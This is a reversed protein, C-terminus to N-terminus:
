HHHGHSHGGGGGHSGFHGGSHGGFLSHGGGFNAKHSGGSFGKSSHGGGFLHFGGSRSAKGSYGGAFSTRQGLGQSRYNGAPARYGQATSRYVPQSFGSRSYASVPQRYISDTRGYVSGARVGNFDGTRGYRGSLSSSQPRGYLPAGSARPGFDNRTVMARRAYVDGVTQYGRGFAFRNEQIGGSTRVFGPGFGRGAIGNYGGGRDYGARDYGRFARPGGHPLGWDAVTTSHSYYDNHQFLVSQTLWSLGWSLWGWPTHNFVTMAIGLGYSVPSSGFFQGLASFLSFGPYPSVSRGYVSWPDYSPVHVVDPNPPALDIHGGDYNVAEQPNSQLNGAAQARQRMMQVAGLVDQPQNYYANGLDSTWPLNRAMQGLVQPFATLAKLSPDWNKEDAGAAIEEPSANGQGERWQDVYRVQDPYTSATLVQALLVDPYLAIPAVLRELQEAGLPQGAAQQQYGQDASSYSQARDPQQPYPQPQTYGRQVYEPQEDAAYTGYSTSQSWGQGSPPAQQAVLEGQSLPLLFLALGMLLRRRQGEFVADSGVRFRVSRRYFRATRSTQAHPGIIMNGRLWSHSADFGQLEHDQELGFVM